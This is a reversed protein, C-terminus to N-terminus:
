IDIWIFIEALIELDVHNYVVFIVSIIIRKNFMLISQGVVLLILPLDNVLCM